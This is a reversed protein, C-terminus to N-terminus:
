LQAGAVPQRAPLECRYAEGTAVAEGRGAAIVNGVRYQDSMASREDTIVVANGGRAEVAARMRQKASAMATATSGGNTEEGSVVGLFKCEASDEGRLQRVSSGDFQSQTACGSTALVLVGLVVEVGSYRM